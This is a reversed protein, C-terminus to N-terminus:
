LGSGPARLRISGSVTTVRLEPGGNGITGTVSGLPPAPPRSLGAGFPGPPPPPPPPPGPAFRLRNRGVPTSGGAGLPFDSEIGGSATTAQFEAGDGDPIDLIVDGSVTTVQVPYGATKRIHVNAQVTTVSVDASLGEVEVEGGITAGAFRVGSPVRVVFDIEPENTRGRNRRQDASDCERVCITIGAAHERVDIPVENGDVRHAEVHVMGDASSMARITGYSGRIQVVQGPSASGTWQLYDGRWQPRDAQPPAAPRASPLPASRLQGVPAELAIGTGPAPARGAADDLATVRATATAVPLLLAALLLLGALRSRLAPTARNRAADVAALLRGELQRPAAMSVALAPPRRHGLAYALDLLHGAYEGADTGGAIVRDDCALEREVRLRRAAWWVGPHAWYLACAVAALLQTLCDRRAVHALEHLLM